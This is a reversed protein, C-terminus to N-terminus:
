SFPSTLNIFSGLTKLIRKPCNIGYIMEVTTTEDTAPLNCVMEALSYHKERTTCRCSTNADIIGILIM